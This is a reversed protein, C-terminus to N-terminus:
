LGGIGIRGGLGKSGISVGGGISAGTGGISAGASVGVGGLAGGGVSLGGTGVGLGLSTTGQNSGASVTAARPTGTKIAALQGKGTLTLNGAADVTAKQGASVDVYRGSRLARVAVRGEQVSVEASNRGVTVNFKTGNVVAVLYPTLVLAEALSSLFSAVLADVEHGPALLTEIVGLAVVIAVAVAALAPMARLVRRADRWVLAAAQAASPVDRSM